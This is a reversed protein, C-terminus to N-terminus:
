GFTEIHKFVGEVVHRLNPKIRALAFSKGQNWLDLRDCVKLGYYLGYLYNDAGYYGREGGLAASVCNDAKKAMFDEIPHEERFKNEEDKIQQELAAIALKHEQIQRLNDDATM